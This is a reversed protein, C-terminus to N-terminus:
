VNGNVNTCAPIYLLTSLNCVSVVIVLCLGSFAFLVFYLLVFSGQYLRIMHCEALFRPPIIRCLERAWVPCTFYFCLVYPSILLIQTHIHKIHLNLLILTLMPLLM